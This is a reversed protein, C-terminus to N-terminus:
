KSSGVFKSCTTQACTTTCRRADETEVPIDICSALCQILCIPNGFCLKVCHWYCQPSHSVKEDVNIHLTLTAVIMILELVIIMTILKTINNIRMSLIIYTTTYGSNDHIKKNFHLSSVGKYM